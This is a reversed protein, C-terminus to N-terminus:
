HEKLLKRLNRTARFVRVEVTGQRVSLLRAIEAHSYGLVVKLVFATRQDAVLSRLANALSLRLPIAEQEAASSLSAAELDTITHHRRAVRLRMLSTRVTVQRLWSEFSGREAYHKLAEPLGIFVDQVIDDAEDASLMLAYATRHVLSAHAEFLQGLAGADGAATRDLLRDPELRETTRSM